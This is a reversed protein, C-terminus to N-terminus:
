EAAALLRNVEDTDIAKREAVDGAVKLVKDAPFEGLPLQDAGRKVGGLEELRALIQNKLKEPSKGVGLREAARKIAAQSTKREIAMAEFEKASEGVVERIAQAAKAGDLVRNGNRAVRGFMKGNGLDIPGTEDVYTTLRARAEKVLQDLREIEFYGDRAREPTMETDGIIALGKSAIQVLLGRKSPCVSKSTCHRCHPGERTSPTQGAKYSHKLAAERVHLQALRAAFDALDMADLEYEDIPQGPQNTYAIYIRAKSKGLARCAVLAYGWLQWNRSAPDVEKHGTKWDIIVVTDIDIALVDISGPIEFPGLSGYDRGAGDGIIRGEGTSVDIAVKVEVRPGAPVIRALRPPLTGALTQRALEDHDDNGLDAWESPNEARPFVLSGDCNLSRPLASMTIM